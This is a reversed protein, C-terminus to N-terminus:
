ASCSGGEDARELCNQALYDGRQNRMTALARRTPLVGDILATAAKFDSSMVTAGNRVPDSRITAWVDVAM